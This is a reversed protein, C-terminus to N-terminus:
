KLLDLLALEIYRGCLQKTEAIPLEGPNDHEGHTVADRGKKAILFQAMDEEATAASLKLSVIAFKQALSSRKEDGVLEEVARGGTDGAKLTGIIESRYKKAAKNVLIELALWSTQFERRKDETVLSQSYWEISRNLWLHGSWARKGIKSFRERIADLPFNDVQNTVVPKVSGGGFKPITSLKKGNRLILIQDKPDTRGNLCGSGIHPALHVTAADLVQRAEAAFTDFAPESAVWDWWVRDSDRKDEVLTGPKDFVMTVYWPEEYSRESEHAAIVEEATRNGIGFGVELVATLFADREDLQDRILPPVNGFYLDLDGRGMFNEFRTADPNSPWEAKKGWSDSGAYVRIARLDCNPEASQGKTM